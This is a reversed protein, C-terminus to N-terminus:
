KNKAVLINAEVIKCGYGYCFDIKLKNEKQKYLQALDKQYYPKFESGYPNIYNGFLHLERNQTQLYKLPMGTDDQLILSCNDLMFQRLKKFEIQHLKYSSAKLMCNDAYHNQKVFELFEPKINHDDMNARYYYLNKKSNQYEFEVIIGRYPELNITINHVVGGLLGIQTVIIPIVGQQHYMQASMKLTKFFGSALYGQAQLQFKELDFSKQVIEPHGPFELGVLIYNDVNPFLALPYSIDPGSFPYFLSKGQIIPALQEKAFGSMPEFFGTKFKNWSIEIADNYQKNAQNETQEKGALLNTFKAFDDGALALEGVFISFLILIRFM